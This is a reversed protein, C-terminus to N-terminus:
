PAWPDARPWLDRRPARARGRPPPAALDTRIPRDAARASAEPATQANARAVQANGGAMSVGIMAEPPAVALPEPPLLLAVDPAPPIVPVPPAEDDVELLLALVDDLELAEDLELADLELPPSAPVSPPSAPGSALSAPQPSM